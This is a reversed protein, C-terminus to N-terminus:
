ATLLIAQREVSCGLRDCRQMRAICVSRMYPNCVSRMYPNCLSRM